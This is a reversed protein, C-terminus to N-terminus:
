LIVASRPHAVLISVAATVKDRYESRREAKDRISLWASRLTPRYCIRATLLGSTRSLECRSRHHLATTACVAEGRRWRVIRPSHCCSLALRGASSERSRVQPGTITQRTWQLSCFPLLSSSARKE